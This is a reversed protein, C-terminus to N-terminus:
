LITPHYSFFLQIEPAVYVPTGIYENMNMEEIKRSTGFDSLILHYDIKRKDGIQLDVLINSSKIDL